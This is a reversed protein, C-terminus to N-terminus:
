VNLQRSRHKDITILFSVSLMARLCSMNVFGLQYAQEGVHEERYVSEKTYLNLLFSLVNFVHALLPFSELSVHLQQVQLMFSFSLFNVLQGAIKGM